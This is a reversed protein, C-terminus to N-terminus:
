GPSPDSIPPRRSQSTNWWHRTSGRNRWQSQLNVVQGWAPLPEPQPSPLTDSPLQKKQTGRWTTKKVTCTFWQWKDILLGAKGPDWEEHGASWIRTVAVRGMIASTWKEGPWQQHRIHIWVLKSYGRNEREKWSDVEKWSKEFCTLMCCIPSAEVRFALCWLLLIWM